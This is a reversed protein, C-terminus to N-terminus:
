ISHKNKLGILCEAGRLFIESIDSSQEAYNLIVVQGETLLAVPLPLDIGM